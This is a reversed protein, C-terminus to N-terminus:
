SDSEGVVALGTSGVLAVCPREDGAVEVSGVAVGLAAPTRGVSGVVPDAVEPTAWVVEVTGVPDFGTDPDGVRALEAPAPGVPPVVDDLGAWAFGVVGLAPESEGDAVSVEVAVDAEWGAVAAGPWGPALTAAATGAARNLRSASETCGADPGRIV